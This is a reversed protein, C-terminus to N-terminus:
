DNWKVQGGYRMVDQELARRKMERAGFYAQRYRHLLKRLGFLSRRVPTLKQEKVEYEVAGGKDM